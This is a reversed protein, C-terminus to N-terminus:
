IGNLKSSMASSPMTTTIRIPMTKRLILYLRAPPVGGIWAKWCDRQTETVRIAAVNYAPIISTVHEPPHVSSLPLGPTVTGINYIRSVGKKWYDVPGLFKAERNRMAQEIKDQYVEIAREEIEKLGKRHCYRRASRHAQIQQWDERLSTTHIRPSPYTTRIVAATDVGKDTGGCLIRTLQIHGPEM